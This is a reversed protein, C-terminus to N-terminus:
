DHYIIRKMMHGPYTAIFVVAKNYETFKYKVRESRQSEKSDAM